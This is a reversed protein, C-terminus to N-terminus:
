QRRSATDTSNLVWKAGGIAPVLVYVGKRECGTVGITTKDIAMAQLQEPPCSMEFAARDLPSVWQQGDYVYWNQKGCGYAKEYYAWGGVGETSITEPDCKFDQAAKARLQGGAGGACAGLLLMIGIKRM